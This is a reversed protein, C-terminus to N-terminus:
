LSFCTRVISLWWGAEWLHHTKREHMYGHLCVPYLKGHLSAYIVIRLKFTLALSSKVHRVPSCLMSFLPLHPKPLSPWVASIRNRRGPLAKSAERLCSSFNQLHWSNHIALCCPPHYTRTGERGARSYNGNNGLNFIKMPMILIWKM